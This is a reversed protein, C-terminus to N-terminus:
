SVWGAARRVADLNRATSVEGDVMVGNMGSHTEALWALWEGADTDAHGRSFALSTEGLADQMAASPPSTLVIGARPVATGDASVWVYGAFRGADNVAAYLITGPPDPFLYEDPPDNKNIPTDSM